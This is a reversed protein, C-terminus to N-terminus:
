RAKSGERGHSGLGTQWALFGIEDALDDLEKDAPLGGSHGMETDYHLLVPRDSGTASQLLAAMKRAHLPAVRTDADGTVFLVAPYATGQKVRHYPSYGLLWRFQEPDDASGYEPVWFKAVMFKDYRVMDLLPYGCDVARFLEPRQTIAAGVLLGGNSRGRLALSEPRSWGTAILHEAAAFLDDFTQQKRALMGQEHWTEGFEAGGRLSPLAVVGGMLMWTAMSASFHPLQTLTFGGYGTMLTPAGSPKAGKAHGLFMPVRAGDTSTFWVQEVVFRDRPFPVSSRWWDARRGSAVDISEITLPESWSSFTLFAAGGTWSGYVNSMSGPGPAEVIRELRGREDLVHVVPRVDELYRACIRGNVLSVDQLPWRSEPVIERWHERGPRALDIELIRGRPARWNTQVVLRSGAIAPDFRADLDDVVAFVPAGPALPKVYIESRRAASGHWTTAVLWRGDDSVDIGIGRGEPVGQGFLVPDSALDTGFVHHMVRPGADGYTVYYAGSGDPALVVGLYRRMPLREAIERASRTDITVIEQEDAGGRRVAYAMRSGDPTVSVISVSAKGDADVDMPDVLVRDGGRLGDRVCLSALQEHARRRSFFLRGGREWPTSMEDSRFFPAAVRRAEAREPLPQLIERAHREQSEIWARTEPADQDELWRYPDRVEVGHITEVVDDRRTPPSPSASAHPLMLFLLLVPALRM